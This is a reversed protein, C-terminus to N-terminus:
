QRIPGKMGQGHLVEGGGAPLGGVSQIAKSGHEQIQQPIQVRSM